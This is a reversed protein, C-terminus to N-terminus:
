DSYSQTARVDFEFSIPTHMSVWLILKFYKLENLCTSVFDASNQKIDDEGGKALGMATAGKALGM